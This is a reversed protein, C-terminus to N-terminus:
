CAHAVLGWGRDRALDVVAARQRLWELYEEVNEPDIEEALKELDLQSMAQAVVAVTRPSLSAYFCGESEKSLKLEDYKDEGSMLPAFAALVLRAYRKDAESAITELADWADFSVGGSMIWDGDYSAMVGDPTGEGLLADIRARTSSLGSLWKWDVADLSYEMAAEGCGLHLPFLCAIM